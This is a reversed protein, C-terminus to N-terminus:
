GPRKRVPIVECARTSALVFHGRSERFAREGVATGIGKIDLHTISGVGVRLNVNGGSRTLRRVRAIRVKPVTLDGAVAHLVRNKRPAIRDRGRRSESPRLRAERVRATRVPVAFAVRVVEDM